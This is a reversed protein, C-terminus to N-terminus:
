QRVIRPGIDYLCPPLSCSIDTELRFVENFAKSGDGNVWLNWWTRIAPGSSFRELFRRGSM